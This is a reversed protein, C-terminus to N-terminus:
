KAVGTVGLQLAATALLAGRRTATAITQAAAGGTTPATLDAGVKFAENATKGTFQGLFEAKGVAPSEGNEFLVVRLIKGTPDLAEGMEIKGNAGDADLFVVVGVSRTDKGTGIYLAPTRDETRIPEGLAAEVWQVQAPTLTTQRQTYTTAEPLTAALKQGPWSRDHALAVGGFLLTSLLLLHSM